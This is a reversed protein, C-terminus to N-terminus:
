SRTTPRTGFVRKSRSSRLRGRRRNWPLAIVSFTAVSQGPRVRAVRFFYDTNSIGPVTRVEKFRTLFFACVVLRISGSILFLDLYISEPTALGRSVISGVATFLEVLGSGMLGGTLVLVGSVVSMYAMCRARKPPSVADLLYNFSSLSYGAWVVGVLAHVLALWWMSSSVFFGFPVITAGLSCFVLAKKNGFEDTLAGWHQMTLFQIAMQTLILSMFQLYSLGVDELLYAGVYPAVIFISFNMAGFFFVFQAFNSRASRRLFDWFSFKDEVAALFPPDDYRALWYSSTLRACCGIVFLAAFGLGANENLECIHLFAGAGVLAFITVIGAQRNRYGFFAGRIGPPVLDGILSSWVPAILHGASFYSTLLVISAIVGAPTIGWIFPIAAIPILLLSQLVAFAVVLRRRSTVREMLRVGLLQCLSGIFPPAAALFALQLANAKLYIGFAGFYSEAAGLMVSFWVADRVAARLSPNDKYPSHFLVRGLWSLPGPRQPNATSHDLEPSLEPSFVM